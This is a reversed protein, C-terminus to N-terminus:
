GQNGPTYGRAMIRDTEPWSELPDWDKTDAYASMQITGGYKAPGSPVPTAATRAVATPAPTNTPRVTAEPPPTFTPTPDAGQTAQAVVAETPAATAVTTPEEAQGCALIVLLVASTALGLILTSKTKLSM